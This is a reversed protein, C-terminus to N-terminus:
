KFLFLEMLVISFIVALIQSIIIVRTKCKVIFWYIGLTIMYIWKYSSESLSWIEPLLNVTLFMMITMICTTIIIHKVLTNNSKTMMKELNTKGIGIVIM